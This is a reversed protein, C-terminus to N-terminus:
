LTPHRLSGLRRELTQGREDVVMRRLSPHCNRGPLLLRQRGRQHQRRETVLPVHSEHSARDTSKCSRAWEKATEEVSQSAAFERRCRRGHGRRWPFHASAVFTSTVSAHVSSGHRWRFRNTSSLETCEVVGQLVRCVRSPEPRACTM